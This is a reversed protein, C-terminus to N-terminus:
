SASVPTGAWRGSGPPSSASCICRGVRRHLGYATSPSCRPGALRTSRTCRSSLSVVDLSVSPATVRSSPRGIQWLKLAHNRRLLPSRLVLLCLAAEMQVYSTTCYASLTDSPDVTARTLTVAREIATRAGREDRLRASALAQQRLCVPVLHAFQESSEALSRQATAAALHLDGTAMLVNAKRMRNYTARAGDGAMEALDVARSTLRLAEVNNGLDQQLWGTFEAYRCALQTLEPAGGAALQEVQHLQGLATALVFNPGALNDFRAHAALQENFYTIAAASPDARRAIHAVVATVDTQQKADDDDALGLSEADLGFADQLLLRNVPDPTAHGNEWRSILVRLSADGAVPLELRLRCAHTGTAVSCIVM